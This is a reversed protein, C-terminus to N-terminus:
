HLAPSFPSTPLCIPFLSHVDTGLRGGSFQLPRESKSLQQSATSYRESILVWFGYLGLLQLIGKPAQQGGRGSGSWSGELLLVSRLGAPESSSYIRPKVPLSLYARLVPLKRLPM